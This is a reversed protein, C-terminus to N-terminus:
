TYITMPSTIYFLTVHLSEGKNQVNRKIFYQSTSHSSELSNFFSNTAIFMWIEVVTTHSGPLLKSLEIKFNIQFKSLTESGSYFFLRSRKHCYIQNYYRLVLFLRSSKFSPPIDATPANVHCGRLFVGKNSIQLNYISWVRHSVGVSKLCRSRLSWFKLSM